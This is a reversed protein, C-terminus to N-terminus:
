EVIIEDVFLWADNGAGPKGEPIKGVSEAVVKVYRATQDGITMEIVNGGKGIDEGSLKGASVFNVTDNSVFVEVAKPLHIWSAEGNFVDITVKSIKEPKGLDVVAEMDPGWWGLWHQGHRSFDGRVGDVLTFAGDGHYDEHPPYKLSISKGTSKSVFLPQVIVGGRQKGNEFYAAKVVTTKPISIASSYTLATLGPESGDLTYRIGTSDFPSSLEFVIGDQTPSRRVKTEMGYIAKSYNVGLNDLLQFHKLLRARFEPFNRGEKSSWVVEALATMRPIAMYEVHEPTSIYETWVNGQAGLIYKKASAYLELPTPEYSYVKEVTTYGGIALPEYQPSGQYHDFYCHSGPTMVAHHKQKAAAIGGQTGRWSMVAARPALGGELIEDWGIIQKGKLNLFREIRRIFYSQLGNEDKLKANRILAQCHRCKKWRDKPCEDGGIHIYKGPFLACVETLVNDLFKFTEKKPCYVDDYVGWAKGVEFPGGTCSLQPYSAIAATSHGPLEIEPVITVHRRAAYAVIEKIEAQTYFGGYRVSDFKQEIYAGVMSGSRWAGTQTLKPYKKIEIRWGQDDTLHWHFTNMKYLAIEDIYKKIFEKPFFHRCVDLHMGRWSYRPADEIEMCPIDIPSRRDAPLLEILTQLAYFVGASSGSIRIGGKTVSMRYGESSRRANRAPSLIVANSPSRDSRSVQLRYGYKKQLFDNFLAAESRLRSAQVVISVASTLQFVGETRYLTAPKPILPIVTDPQRGISVTSMFLVAQLMRFIMRRASSPSRSWLGPLSLM